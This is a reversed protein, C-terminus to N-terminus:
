PGERNYRTSSCYLVSEPTDAYGCVPGLGLMFARDFQCSKDKVIQKILRRDARSPKPLPEDHTHWEGVYNAKGGSQSWSRKIVENAHRKSRLFHFRGREDLKGPFTLDVVEYKPFRADRTGLLVGGSELFFGDQSVREDIARAVRSPIRLTTGDSFRVVM